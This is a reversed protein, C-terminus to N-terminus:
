FLQEFVRRTAPSRNLTYFHFENVGHSRLRGVLEIAVSAAIMQRTEPDEDLGEFRQHLWGSRIRESQSQQAPEGGLEQRFLKLLHQRLAISM